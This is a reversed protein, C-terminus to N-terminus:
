PITSTAAALWSCRAMPCCRPPTAVARRVWAGLPLGPGPAAPRVARASALPGCGAKIGGAVLVKGDPLLTATHGGRPAGMSGTATWSGHGPRVARRPCHRRQRLRGRRAGHWRAAAHGYSRPRAGHWAGPPPGPGSAQTTCSPPPWRRVLDRQRRRWGRAGQRRAAAHGHRRLAAHSMSGTATWSGTGPRVARRFRAHGDKDLGGAVLVKGDPLLTATNRRAHCAWPEPPPGPDWHRPDFLEATAIATRRCRSGHHQPDWWGRAGQWGAAAHGHRASSGRDHERDATWSAARVPLDSSNPGASPSAQESPSASAGPTASPVASWPSTPAQVLYLAGGVVLAGIVAATALRAFMSPTSFRPMHVARRQAGAIAARAISGPEFAGVGLDADSRLAAAFRREFQDFDNM